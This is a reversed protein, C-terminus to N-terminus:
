LSYELEIDSDSFNGEDYVITGTISVTEKYWTSDATDQYKFKYVLTVEATKDDEDDGFDTGDVVCFGIEIIVVETEDNDIVLNKLKDFDVITDELYEELDDINSDVEDIVDDEANDELDTYCDNFMVQWIDSVKSNDLKEAAPVDVEPVLAAVEAATPMSLGAMSSVVSSQVLANIKDYDVPTVPQPVTAFIAIVGVVLLALIVWQAWTNLKANGM